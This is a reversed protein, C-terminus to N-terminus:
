DNNLERLKLASYAYVASALLMGSDDSSLAFYCCAASLLILGFISVSNLIKM